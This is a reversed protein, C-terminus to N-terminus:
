KILSEMDEPLNAVIKIEEKTIPHIFTMKYAHLAQRNILNTELGYLTDGLISNGIHALHVRIQHTRGTELILHVLSINKEEIYRMVDYHTIAIQGEESVIREMISGDKRAIPFSLTDKEKPLKGIALAIYEKEIKINKIMLEQIYENKAFLVIGSTDRDLRNIARIKKKNNLYYKVGNALTNNLHNSSPHVVIGHPKNIALLYEDEYLIDLNMAELSINDTEEFDINVIIEDNPHVIYGSFVSTRNVLIKGNMKLKNLLRSSINFKDRLLSGVKKGEDEKLVIYTLIIKIVGILIYNYLLFLNIHLPLFVQCLKTM